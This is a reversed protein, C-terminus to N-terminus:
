RTRMIKLLGVYAPVTLFSTSPSSPGTQTDGATPPGTQGDPHQSTTGSYNHVHHTSGTIFNFVGQVPVIVGVPESTQGSFSHAHGQVSHTHSGLSHSHSLTIGQSDQGGAPPPGVNAGFSPSDAIGRVFRDILNPANRTHFPSDPDNIQQGACIVWGDPVPDSALPRYWDVVGGIPVSGGANVAFPVSGMRTLPALPPGGDITIELYRPNADLERVFPNSGPTPTGAFDLEASGEGLHVTFVGRRVPVNVHREGWLFTAASPSPSSFLKFDLQGVTGELPVGNSDVLRGQHQVVHTPPAASARAGLVVAAAVLPLALLGYRKM